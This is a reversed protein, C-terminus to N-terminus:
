EILKLFDKESIIPINLDRAKKNKSSNSTLDNNILYNTKKSVSSIVNGGNSEIVNVLEQRNSFSELKGTIAFSLNQLKNGITLTDSEFILEKCLELYENLNNTNTFYDKISDAVIYGIDEIDTWEINLIDETVAKHFKAFNNNFFQSIKKSSVKGVCPISLANILKSLTTTRSKDINKLLKDVSKQGLGEVEYLKDKSKELHYVSYFKDNLYGLDLLRELTAKSMGEINMAEKSVFHSLRCLTKGKCHNNTCVLVQSNNDQKIKTDSGCIPCRAPIHVFGDMQGIGIRNDREIKSLNSAIQPIISNAKYVTIRDGCALQLEELISLNHVSAKEVITGDIEVPKFVAVPTIIGTRGVQWEIDILETEVEEDYFKYAISHKPHHSTQGLSEGYTIDNYSMVLGDIPYNLAHAQHKLFDIMKSLNEKDSSNNSYTLYPVVTFGLKKLDCFSKYMTNKETPVKWAIFQIHRQAAIKSDLQRVSGSVLNRPNKYKDNPNNIQNNIIEFDRYTIIAEGEVELHGDYDINVPINEFVKANHTVIEGEEGNGRTEAQILEGNEYTLLITLGDMKMSLICDQDDAFAQLDAENKTKDLSLMPHSHKTKTLESKVEYGITKCPSSSLYFGTEDELNKLEDFLLDYEKDSILSNNNNYYENRYNNLQRTLDKIRQIKNM